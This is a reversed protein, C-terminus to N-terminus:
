LTICHSKGTTNTRTDDFYTFMFGGSLGKRITPNYLSQLKEISTTERASCRSGYVFIPVPYDGNQQVIEELSKDGEATGSCISNINLALFDVSSTVNGCILNQYFNRGYNATLYGLPIKGRKQDSLHEKLDRIAAKVYPLTVPSGTIFFAILNSFGRLNEIVALSRTYMDRDWTQTQFIQENPRSLGAVVYIGAEQLHRMCVSHDAEPRLWHM